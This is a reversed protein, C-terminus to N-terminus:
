LHHRSDFTGASAIGSLEVGSHILQHGCSGWSFSAAGVYRGFRCVWILVQKHGLIFHWESLRLVSFAKKTLVYIMHLPFIIITCLIM